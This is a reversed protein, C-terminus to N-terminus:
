RRCRECGEVEIDGCRLLTQITEGFNRSLEVDYHYEGRKFLKTASGDIHVLFLGGTPKEIEYKKILKLENHFKVVIRDNENLEIADGREDFISFNLYFADGEYWKIIGSEIRPSDKTEM